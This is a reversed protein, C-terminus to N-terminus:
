ALKLELYVGLWSLSELHGILPSVHQKLEEKEGESGEYGEVKVKIM